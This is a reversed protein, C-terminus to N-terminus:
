AARYLADLTRGSPEALYLNLSQAQDLSKQRRAAAAVLWQPDIEFATAYRRKLEDPIREIPGLAGDSSKLAAVMDADWLGAPRLAGVLHGYLVTFGRVMNAQVYLNRYPREIAQSVDCINAITGTPAIALVNSSRMGVAQ